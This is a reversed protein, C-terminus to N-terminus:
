PSTRGSRGRRAAPPREGVGEPRGVGAGPPKAGAGPPKAGVDPRTLTGDAVANRIAALEETSLTGNKDVDFPAIQAYHEALKAAFAAEDVDAGQPFKPFAGTEGLSGDAIAEALEAQEAADLKQDKNADALALIAYRQAMMTAFPPPGSPRGQGAGNPPGGGPRGPRGQALATTCLVAVAAFTILSKMTKM